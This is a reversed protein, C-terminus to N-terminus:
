FHEHHSERLQTSGRTAVLLTALCASYIDLYRKAFIQIEILMHQLHILQTQGGELKAKLEDGSLAFMTEMHCYQTLYPYLPVLITHDVM